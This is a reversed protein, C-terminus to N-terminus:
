GRADGGGWLFRMGESRLLDNTTRMEDLLGQDDALLRTDSTRGSCGAHRSPSPRALVPSTMMPIKKWSALAYAPGSGPVLRRGQSDVIAQSGAVDVAVIRIDPRHRRLYRSVGVLTGGTSVAVYVSCGVANCHEAIEPGTTDEHIRPNAPNRYQDPWRYGTPTPSLAYRLASAVGPAPSRGLEDDEM